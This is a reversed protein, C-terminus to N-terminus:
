HKIKNKLNVSIIGGTASSIVLIIFTIFIIYDVNFDNILTSILVILLNTPLTYLVAFILGKKKKKKGVIYGTLLNGLGFLIIFLFYDSSIDFAFIVSSSILLVSCKIILDYILSVVFDPIYNVKKKNSVSKKVM